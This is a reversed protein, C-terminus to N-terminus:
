PFATVATLLVSRLLVKMWVYTRIMHKEKKTKRRKKSVRTHWRTFANNSHREHPIQLKSRFRM